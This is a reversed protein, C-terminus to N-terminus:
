RRRTEWRGLIEEIAQRCNRAFAERTHHERAHAWARHSRATLEDVPLSAISRVHRRITEVQADPLLFGFDDLDVSSERTVLPILGAHMCTIVSGGGGESCSPYVVGMTRGVIRRFRDGFVDVFGATRINPMGYLERGYEAEFDRELHVPACVTLQQEPMGAFAELTRDLGKHVLGGSGFWLWHRRVRDFDKDNPAPFLIPTSIPIRFIEKEADAYTGITFDNGVTTGFHAVDIAQNEELMRQPRLRVGRRQELADLRVRQAANHFRHHATEMHQILLCDPGVGPALRELNLRVDLVLDYPRQPEFDQDTWDIVDVDFGLDALTLVIQRSEWFHTHSHPLERNLDGRCPAVLYSVLATGRSSSRAGVHAVPSRGPRLKAVLKRRLRRFESRLMSPRCHLGWWRPYLFLPRKSM